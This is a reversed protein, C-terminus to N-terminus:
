MSWGGGTVIARCELGVLRKIANGDKAGLRRDGEMDIKPPSVVVECRRAGGEAAKSCGNRTHM